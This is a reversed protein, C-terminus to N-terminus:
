TMWRDFMAVTITPFWVGQTTVHMGLRVHACAMQPCIRSQRVGYIDSLMAVPRQLDALRVQVGQLRHHPHDGETVDVRLRGAGDRLVAQPPQQAQRLQRGLVQQVDLVAEGRLAAEQPHSILALARATSACTCSYRM